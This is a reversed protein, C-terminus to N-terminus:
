DENKNLWTPLSKSYVLQIEQVPTVSGGDESTPTIRPKNNFQMQNSLELEPSISLTSYGKMAIVGFDEKIWFQLVQKPEMWYHSLDGIMIDTMM